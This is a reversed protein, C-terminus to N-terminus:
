PTFTQQIVVRGGPDPLGSGSAISRWALVDGVAVTRNAATGLTIEKSVGRTLNVGSTLALSACSASGAGSQGLNILSLTRTNTNAGSVTWNPYFVVSNILGPRKVTVTHLQDAADADFQQPISIELTLDPPWLAPM